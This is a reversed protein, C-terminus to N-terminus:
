IQHPKKAKVKFNKLYNIYATLIKCALNSSSYPTMYM